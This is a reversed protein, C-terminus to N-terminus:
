VLRDVTGYSVKGVAEALVDLGLGGSYLGFSLNGKSHGLLQAAVNLPVGANEPETALNRFSLFNLRM